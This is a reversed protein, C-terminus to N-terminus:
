KRGDKIDELLSIIIYISVYALSSSIWYGITTLSLDTVDSNFIYAMFVLIVKIWKKM